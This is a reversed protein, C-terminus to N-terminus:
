EREKKEKRRGSEEYIDDILVRVESVNVGTTDEIYAKVMEQLEKTMSPIITKTKVKGRLLIRVGEDDTGLRTSIEDIGDQQTVIGKVLNRLANLTIDVEGLDNENIRTFPERVGVNFLRYLIWAGIIFLALFLLGFEWSAHFNNIISPIAEKGGLGFSYLSFLITLFMFVVTILILIIRNIARM